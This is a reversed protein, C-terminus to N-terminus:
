RARGCRSHARGGGAGSGAPNGAADRDPTLSVGALGGESGGIALESILAIGFRSENCDGANENMFRICFMALEKRSEAKYQMRLGIRSRSLEIFLGKM